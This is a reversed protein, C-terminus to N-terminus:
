DIARIKNKVDAIFPPAVSFNTIGSRILEPIAELDGAVDGCISVPIHDVDAAVKKILALVAPHRTRFYDAVLPNDRDAAMTFQTLDNTGISLFESVGAIEAACLAAAPTEIMAGVRPLTPIGLEMAVERLIERVRLVDDAITVMPILIGIPFSAHVRLLARIETRLLEPFDFLLRVGRRGLFPNEEEPFDLYPVRKDGGVDLLRITVPKGRFPKVADFLAQVLEDETPLHTSNMYLKEVRFLGIGAAGYQRASVADDATGINAHVEVQRGARTTVPGRKRFRDWFRLQKAAATKRRFLRLLRDDPNVHVVGENGDVIVLCDEPLKEEVGSVGGVLPIGMEKALLVVHSGASGNTVVIAQIGREPLRVTDSPYLHAAAVVSGPPPKMRSVARAGGLRLMLRRELDALDDTKAVASESAAKRLRQEMEAFVRRVVEEANVMSAELEGSIREQLTPDDLITKQAIFIAATHVDFKDEVEQSMAELELRVAAFAAHVRERERPLRAPSITRVSHGTPAHNRLHVVRGIGIGPALAAGRVGREAAGTVRGFLRRFPNNVM